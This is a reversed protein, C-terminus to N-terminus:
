AGHHKEFGNHYITEVEEEKGFHIKIPIVMNKNMPMEIRFEESHSVFGLQPLKEELLDKLLGISVQTEITRPSTSIM